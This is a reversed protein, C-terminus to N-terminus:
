INAEFTFTAIPSSIPYSYNFTVANKNDSISSSIRCKSDSSFLYPDNEITTNQIFSDM